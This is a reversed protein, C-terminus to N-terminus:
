RYAKRSKESYFGDTTATGCATAPTNTRFRGSARTSQPRYLHKWCATPYGFGRSQHCAVFVDQENVIRLYGDMVNNTTEKKDFLKKFNGDGVRPQGFTILSTKVGLRKMEESNGLRAACLTAM